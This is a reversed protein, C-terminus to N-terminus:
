TKKIFAIYEKYNRIYDSEDYDMDCYVNIINLNDKYIQHSWIGNPIMLGKSSDDLVYEEKNTGDDVEILILGKICVIFQKCLKHAHHGREINNQTTISFVRKIDFKTNHNSIVCIKGRQDQINQVEILEVDNISYNNKKM